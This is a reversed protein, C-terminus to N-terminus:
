DFIYHSNVLNETDHIIPHGPKGESVESYTKDGVKEIFLNVIELDRKLHSLQKRKLFKLHRFASEKTEFAFRGSNKRFKKVKVNKRKLFEYLSEGENRKEQTYWLQCEPIVFYFCETEHVLYYKETFISLGRPDFSMKMKYFKKM